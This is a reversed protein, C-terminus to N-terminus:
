LRLENRARGHQWSSDSSQQFRPAVLKCREGTADRRLILGEVPDDGFASSGLLAELRSWSGLVGSFLHPPTVFGANSARSDRDTISLFGTEASWLDLIVLWDPLRDYRISHVLWLWEGYLAMGGDLLIQLERSREAAWARLRGLQGARDMAGVGGRGAVRSEGGELWVAVNAGDLKEEVVVPEDFWRAREVAPVVKVLPKSSPARLYPTRPYPPPQSVVLGCANSRADM